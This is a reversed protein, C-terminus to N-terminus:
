LNKISNKLLQNLRTLDNGVVSALPQDLKLSVVCFVREHRRSRKLEVRLAQEFKDAAHIFTHAAVSESFALSSNHALQAKRCLMQVLGCGVWAMLFDTLTFEVPVLGTFNALWYVSFVLALFLLFTLSTFTM